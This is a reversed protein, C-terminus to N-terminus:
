RQVADKAARVTIIAPRQMHEQEDTADSGAAIVVLLLQVEVLRARLVQDMVRLHENGVAAVHVEM